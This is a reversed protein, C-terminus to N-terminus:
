SKGTKWLKTYEAAFNIPPVWSAGKPLNHTADIIQLGVGVTSPKQGAFLRNLQNMADWGSWPGSFADCGIDWGARILAPEGYTCQGSIVIMRNKGTARGANVLDTKVGFDLASGDFLWITNAQPYKTLASAVDQGLGAFSSAATVDVTDLVKCNPCAKLDKEMQQTQLYVAALDTVNLVILKLNGKNQAMAWDIRGKVYSVLEGQDYPYGDITAAGDYLPKPSCNLGGLSVTKIGADVAATLASKVADCDIGTVMIGNAKAAVADMIQQGATVPDSENDVTNVNWGLAKGAAVVGTNVEACDPINLSCIINWVLKHKAAKPGTPDVQMDIGKYGQQVYADIPKLWAPTSSKSAATAVAALAFAAAFVAVVAILSSRVKGFGKRPM